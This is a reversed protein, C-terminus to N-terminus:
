ERGDNNEKLFTIKRVASRPITMEGCGQDPDSGIHPVVTYSDKREVLWGVSKVLCADRDQIENMSVWSDSVGRSDDWEVM